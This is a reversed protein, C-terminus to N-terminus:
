YGSKEVVLEGFAALVLTYFAIIIGQFIAIFLDM